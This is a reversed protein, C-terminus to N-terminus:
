KSEELPRDIKQEFPSFIIERDEERIGIGTDEVEFRLQALQPSERKAVEARLSVGGSATFKIANGILNTLVQRLKASDVTINRPLHPSLELAFSLGKKAVQVSMLSEIERLFRDLNINADESVM